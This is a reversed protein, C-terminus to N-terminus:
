FMRSGAAPTGENPARAVLPKGKKAASVKRGVERPRPETRDPRTSVERIKPRSGPLKRATQSLHRCFTTV